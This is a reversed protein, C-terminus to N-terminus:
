KARVTNEKDDWYNAKNKLVWRVGGKPDEVDGTYRPILHVHLHMVSQGAAQGNNVGMNYGDPNFEEDLIKKANQVAKGIALLEEETAEFYTAFHRKPVILTHGPSAPYSDIFTLTHECEGIIREDRLNCFICNESM